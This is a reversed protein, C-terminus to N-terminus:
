KALTRMELQEEPHGSPAFRNKRQVKVLLGSVFKIGYKQFSFTIEGEEDGQESTHGSRGEDKKM